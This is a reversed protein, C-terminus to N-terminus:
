LATRGDVGRIISVASCGEGSHNCVGGVLFSVAIVALEFGWDSGKRAATSGRGESRNEVGLM